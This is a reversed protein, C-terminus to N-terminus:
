PHPPARAGVRGLTEYFSVHARVHASLPLVSKCLPYLPMPCSTPHQHQVCACAAHMRRAHAGAGTYHTHTHSTRSHAIPPHTHASIYACHLWHAAHLEQATPLISRMSMPMPIAQVMRM